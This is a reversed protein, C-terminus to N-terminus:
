TRCEPCVDHWNSPDDEQRRSIWGHSRNKKWDVVEQFSDFELDTEDGCIDCRIEYFAGSRFISM